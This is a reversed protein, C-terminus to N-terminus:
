VRQTSTSPAPATSSPWVATLWGFRRSKRGGKSDMSRLRGLSAEACAKKETLPLEGARIVGVSASLKGECLMNLNCVMMMASLDDENPDVGTDCIRLGNRLVPLQALVANASDVRARVAEDPPVYRGDGQQRHMSMLVFVPDRVLERHAVMPRWPAGARGPWFPRVHRARWGRNFLRRRHRAQGRLQACAQRRLDQVPRRRGDRRVRGPNPLAARGVLAHGRDGRAQLVPRVGQPHDVRQEDSPRMLRTCRIHQGQVMYDFARMGRVNKTFSHAPPGKKAPFRGAEDMLTKYVAAHGHGAAAHLATNGDPSAEYVHVGAKLLARVLGNDGATAAARLVAGAGGEGVPLVTNAPMGKIPEAQGLAFTVDYFGRPAGDPAPVHTEITAKEWLNCVENQLVLVEEGVAMRDEWFAAVIRRVLDTGLEPVGTEAAAADMVEVPHCLTAPWPQPVGLELLRAVLRVDATSEESSAASVAAEVASCIERERAAAPSDWASGVPKSRALAARVAFLPEAEKSYPGANAGPDLDDMLQELLSRAEAPEITGSGAKACAEFM